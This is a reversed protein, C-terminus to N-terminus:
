QSLKSSLLTLLRRLHLNENQLIKQYNCLPALQKEFNLILDAKPVVATQKKLETQTLLAQVGGKAIENYNVSKLLHYSYEYFSTEAVLVNDAAWLYEHYKNVVGLTGVRGTTLIKDTKNYEASFGIIGSAGIVPYPHKEDQIDMKDSCSKGSSITMIEDLTGM